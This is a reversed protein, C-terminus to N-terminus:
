GCCQAVGWLVLLHVPYFAYFGWRVRPLTGLPLQSVGWILVPLVLPVFSAPTFLNAALLLLGTLCGTVLSPRLLLLQMASVLWVGVPGYEVFLGALGWVLALNLGALWTPMFRGLQKCAPLFSVGLLLTFLINLPVFGRGLTVMAPVQSVVGFALLPLLYRQFPVRRVTLNYAMLFVFLPFALRGVAFAWGQFPWVTRNAHDLTMTAIATWKLLEQQASTLTLWRVQVAEPQRDLVAVGQNLAM